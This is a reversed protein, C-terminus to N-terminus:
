TDESLLGLHLFRPDMLYSQWVIAHERYPEVRKKFQDRVLPYYEHLASYRLEEITAELGRLYPILSSLTATHTSLQF